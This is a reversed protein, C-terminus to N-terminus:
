DVRVTYADVIRAELKKKSNINEVLILDGPNGHKLAKGQMRVQVLSNGAIISVSQGRKITRQESLLGPSIVQGPNLTRKVTRGVLNDVSTFYGRLLKSTDQDVMEFDGPQITDGRSLAKSAVAVAQKSGVRASVYLTWPTPSACRVGVTTKGYSGSSPPSFAELPQDCQKLKLRHDLPHVDILTEGGLNTSQDSLYEQVATIIVGHDQYAGHVSATIALYALLGYLISTYTNPKM